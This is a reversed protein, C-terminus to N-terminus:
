MRAETAVLRAFEPNRKIFAAFYSCRPIVRWGRQRAEELAARTLKAAIGKGRLETPVFTHKFVARNGDSSYSLFALPHNGVRVEFRRSIADHTVSADPAESGSEFREADSHSHQDNTNM